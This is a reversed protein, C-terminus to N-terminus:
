DADPAARDAEDVENDLQNLLGDVTTLQGDVRSTDTGTGANTAPTPSTSTGVPTGSDPHAGDVRDAHARCGGLFVACLAAVLVTRKM